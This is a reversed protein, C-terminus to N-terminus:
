GHHMLITACVETHHALLRRADVLADLQAQWNIEKRTAANATQMKSVAQRRDLPCCSCVRCTQNTCCLTFPKLHCSPGATSRGSQQVFWSRARLLLQQDTFLLLRTRIFMPAAPCAAWCMPSSACGM